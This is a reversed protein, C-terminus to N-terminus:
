TPMCWGPLFNFLMLLDLTHVYIECVVCLQCEHIEHPMKTIKKRNRGRKQREWTDHIKIKISKKKNAGSLFILEVTNHENKTLWYFWVSKNCALFNSISLDLFNNNAFCDVNVFLENITVFHNDIQQLLNSGLVIENMSGGYKISM